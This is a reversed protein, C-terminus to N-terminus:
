CNSVITFTIERKLADNSDPTASLTYSGGHLDMPIVKGAADGALMYPAVQETRSRNMKGSLTLKVPKACGSTSAKAEINVKKPLRSKCVEYMDMLDFEPKNTVANWLVFKSISCSNRPKVPAQIPANTPAMTVANTIMPKLLIVIGTGDNTTLGDIPGLSPDTGTPGSLDFGSSDTAVIPAKTGDFSPASTADVSTTNVGSLQRHQSNNTPGRLSKASVASVAILIAVIRFM